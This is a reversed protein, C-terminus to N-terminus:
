PNRRFVIVKSTLIQVAEGNQNITTSQLTVMGRDPRSKSPAIDLIESDVHLIDGPRTPRPWTIEVGAGIMGNAFIHSDVILRMSMAATHWGSAALGGFLSSAAADEDLHFYQPDYQSAFSKIHDIDVETQGSTFRQGIQLDELALPGPATQTIEDSM